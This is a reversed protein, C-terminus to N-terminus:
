GLEEGNFQPTTKTGTALKKYVLLLIIIIILSFIYGMYSFLHQDDPSVKIQKRNYLYTVVVATGNNLFHAWVAPWISGSWAVLYGFLGGLFMRPLFGYFEMHFASFLAAGIWIAAHTNKTWRQLITQLVGRFMFEEAVATLLGVLFLNKLMDAVTDMKLIAVTLKQASAESAKMWNEVGSLFPPLVMKQNINSLLEMLPSSIFMIFFTVLLLMWSFRSGAKLYDGPEKVVVYSFFVPAIFIPVTTSIVQLLYLASTTNSSKFQLNSIDMLTDTGYLAMIITIAIIYGILITAVSITVFVPFQLGASIQNVPKKVM